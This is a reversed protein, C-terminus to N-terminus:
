DNDSKFERRVREDIPHAYAASLTLLVIKVYFDQKVAKATKGSFCELKIRNKLFKYAEEENWCFHNLEKFQEYPSQKTDILSTYLLKYQIQNL